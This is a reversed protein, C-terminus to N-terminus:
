ADHSEKWEKIAQRTALLLMKRYNKDHLNVWQPDFKKWCADVADVWSYTKKSM